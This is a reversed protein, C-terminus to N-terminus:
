LGRNSIVSLLHKSLGHEGSPAWPVAPRRRSSEHGGRWRRWPFWCPRWEGPPLGQPRRGGLTGAPEGPSAMGELSGPIAPRRLSSGHSGGGLSDVSSGSVLHLGQPRREGLSGAPCYAPFSRWEGSSTRRRYSFRQSFPPIFDPSRHHTPRAGTLPLPHPPQRAPDTQIDPAKQNTRTYFLIRCRPHLNARACVCVCVCVCM